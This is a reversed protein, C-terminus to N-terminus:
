FSARMGFEMKRPTNTQASQVGWSASSYLALGPDGLIDHNFVNTFIMSFQLSARELVKISKQVSMDV